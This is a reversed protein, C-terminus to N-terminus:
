AADSDRIQQGLWPAQWGGHSDELAQAVRICLHDQGPAAVIQIGLPLGEADLGLPVATAPLELVNIIGTYVWDFPTLIPAGHRPATRTYSPYLLVGDDGLAEVIQAKLRERMPAYRSPLPFREMAALGLAPLTHASRRRLWRGWEPLLRIATGEGLQQAFPAQGAAKMAAAWIEFSHRLLEFKLTQAQAVQPTLARLADSQARRLAASVRHRGNGAVSYVKLTALDVTEPDGLASAQDGGLIRMLPMLDEARRSLPGSVCYGDVAGTPMPVQGTNPVIGPTPKHGFVGNFFAPMRISGGVDAGLGFPSGGAGIIAGEGGSSGGAIREHRYPNNTRGYVRNDTEMWMCLEPTNTVGMVVAGAERLRAVAPADQQNILHRRSVLGSAQPTGSLEFNEKITCPVGLLPPLPGGQQRRRDAADAEERALQFREFVVANIQPNVKEIQQIHAELLDRSRIRGAAMAASMQRASAGLAESKNM